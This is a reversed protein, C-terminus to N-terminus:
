FSLQLAMRLNARTVPQISSTANYQRPQVVDSQTPTTSLPFVFMLSRLYQVPLRQM